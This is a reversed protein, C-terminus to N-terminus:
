ILNVNKQIKREREKLFFFFLSLFIDNEGMVVEFVPKVSKRVSKIMNNASFSHVYRDVTEIKLNKSKKYIFYHVYETYQPSQNFGIIM